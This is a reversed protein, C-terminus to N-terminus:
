VSHPHGRTETTRFKRPAHFSKSQPRRRNQQLLIRPEDDCVRNIRLRAATDQPAQSWHACEIHHARIEIPQLRNQRIAHPMSRLALIAIPM